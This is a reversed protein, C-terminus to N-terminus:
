VFMQRINSRFIFFNLCIIMLRNTIVIEKNKM